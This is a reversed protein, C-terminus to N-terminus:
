TRPGVGTLGTAGADSSPAGLTGGSRRRASCFLLPVVAGVKRVVYGTGLQIPGHEALEGAERFPEGVSDSSM